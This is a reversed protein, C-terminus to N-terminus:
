YRESNVFFVIGGRVHVGSGPEPAAALSLSMLASVRGSSHTDDSVGTRVSSHFCDPHSRAVSNFLYRLACPRASVQLASCRAPETESSSSLAAAKRCLAALHLAGADASQQPSGTHSACWPANQRRGLHWCSNCFLQFFLLGLLQLSLGRARVPRCEAPQAAM